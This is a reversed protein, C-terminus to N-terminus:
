LFYSNSYEKPNFNNWKSPTAHYKPYAESKGTKKAAETISKYKIGFLVLPKSMPHNEGSRSERFGPLEWQRIVNNRAFDPNEKHFKILSKHAKRAKNSDSMNKIAEPTAPRAEWGNEGGKTLNYGKRNPFIFTDYEKIYKIEDLSIEERTKKTSLIKINFMDSGHKAIARYLPKDKCAKDNICFKHDAWRRKINSTIGVYSKGNTTNTILYCYMLGSEDYEKLTVSDMFENANM